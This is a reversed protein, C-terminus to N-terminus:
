SDHLKYTENLDMEMAQYYGAKFDQTEQYLIRLDYGGNLFNHVGMCFQVSANPFIDRAHSILKKGKTEPINLDAHEHFGVMSLDSEDFPLGCNNCIM